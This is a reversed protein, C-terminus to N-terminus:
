AKHNPIGANFAHIAFLKAFNLTATQDLHRLIHIVVCREIPLLKLLHAQLRTVDLANIVDGLQGEGVLEVQAVVIRESQSGHGHTLNHTDM